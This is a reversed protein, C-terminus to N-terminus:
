SQDSKYYKLTFGNLAEGSKVKNQITTPTVHLARAAKAISPYVEGTEVCLIPVSAYVGTRPVSKADGNSASARKGGEKRSKAKHTSQKECVPQFVCHTCSLGSEKRLKCISQREASSRTLEDM